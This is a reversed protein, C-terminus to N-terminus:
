KKKWKNNSLQIWWGKSADGHLTDAFIKEAKPYFEEKMQASDSTGNIDLITNYLAFIIARRDKNEEQVLSKESSSLSGPVREEVMGRNNEGIKGSDLLSKIESLRASRNGYAEIVEPRSKMRALIDGANIEGAYVTSSFIDFSGFNISVKEPVVMKEDKNDEDLLEKTEDSSRLLEDELTSIAEKAETEPFNINVVIKVCSLLLISCLALLFSKRM